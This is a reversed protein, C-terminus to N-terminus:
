LHPSHSSIHLGMPVRGWEDKESRRSMEQAAEGNRRWERRRQSIGRILSILSFTLKPCSQHLVPPHLPCSRAQQPATTIILLPTSLLFQVNPWHAEPPLAPKLLILNSYPAWRPCTPEKSPLIIEPKVRYKILRIGHSPKLRPLCLDVLSQRNRGKPFSMRWILLSEWSVKKETEVRDGWFQHRRGSMAGKM